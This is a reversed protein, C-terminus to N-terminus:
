FYLNKGLQVWELPWRWHFHNYQRFWTFSLRYAKFIRAEVQSQVSPVVAEDLLSALSRNTLFISTQHFGKFCYNPEVSGAIENM